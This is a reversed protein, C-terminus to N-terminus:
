GETQGKDQISEGYMLDTTKYYVILIGSVPLVAYVWTMPIRLAASHQDLIFTIYMLRIGGIILVCLVFAIILLNLIVSLRRQASNSLAPKLLDIALHMRQGSAYAAGLLGAWILLFRVLEETWDAQSGFIYRTVVGWLVDITMAAMLIILVFGIYKNIAIRM